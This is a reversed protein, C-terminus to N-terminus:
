RVARDAPRPYKASPLRVRGTAVADAVFGTDVQGLRIFGKLLLGTSVTLAMALGVQTVVFLHRLRGAGPGSTMGRFGGRLHAAPEAVALQLSPAMGVILTSALAMLVSVVVVRRDVVATELRPIDMSARAAIWAVAWWALVIGIAVATLALVTNETLMQRLLRARNAGLAARLSMEHERARARALLLNGLLVVAGLLMRIAPRIAGVLQERLPVLTMRWQRNNYFDPNDGAIREAVRALDRSAQDVGVDPRLCVLAHLFNQNRRARAYTDRDIPVWVDVRGPFVASPPWFTFGRPLVGVVTFSRGDLTLPQGIAHGATTFLREAIPDSIVAPFLDRAADDGDQLGRGAITAIGLVDFVNPSAAVAQLEEPDGRGTLTFRQDSMAAVAAFAQARSRLDAFEPPSLWIDRPSDDTRDWVLALRDADAYPLPRILVARTVSFMTTAAGIGIALTIVALAYVGPNKLFARVGHRVDEVLAASMDAMSSPHARVSTAPALRHTTRTHQVVNWGLRFWLQLRTWRSRSGDALAEAALECIAAGYKTRFSRSLVRLLLGYFAPLRTM